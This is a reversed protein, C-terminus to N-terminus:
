EDLERIIPISTFYPKIKPQELTELLLEFNKIKEESLIDQINEYTLISSSSSYDPIIKLFYNEQYFNEHFPVLFSLIKCQYMKEIKSNFYHLSTNKTILEILKKPLHCGFLLYSDIQKM